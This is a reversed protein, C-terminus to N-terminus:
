GRNGSTSPKESASDIVATMREVSRKLLGLYELGTADMRDSYEGLIWSSVMTVTCLPSRLNHVVSVLDSQVGRRILPPRGASPSEVRPNCRPTSRDRRGTGSGSEVGTKLRALGREAERARLILRIVSVLQGSTVSEPLCLDAGRAWHKEAGPSCIAIVPIGATVPDAKLRCWNEPSLGPSKSMVMLSPKADVSLRLIDHESAADAVTYGVKRLARIRARARARLIDVRPSAYLITEAM